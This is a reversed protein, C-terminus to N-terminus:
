LPWVLRVPEVLLGTDRVFGILYYYSVDKGLVNSRTDAVGDLLPTPLFSVTIYM